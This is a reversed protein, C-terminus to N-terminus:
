REFRDARTIRGEWTVGDEVIFCGIPQKAKYYQRASYNIVARHLLEGYLNEVDKDHILNRKGSIEDFNEHSYFLIARYPEELLLEQSVVQGKLYYPSAAIIRRCISSSSGPMILADKFSMEGACEARSKSPLRSAYMVEVNTIPVALTNKVTIRIPNAPYCLETDYSVSVELRSIHIPDLSSTRSQAHVPLASGILASVLGAKLLGIQGIM